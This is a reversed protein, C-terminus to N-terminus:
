ENVGLHVLNEYRDVFVAIIQASIVCNRRVRGARTLIRPLGPSALSPSKAVKDAATIKIEYSLDVKRLLIIALNNQTDKFIEKKGIDLAAGQLYPVSPNADM